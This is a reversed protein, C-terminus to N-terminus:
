PKKEVKKNAERPPRGGIGREFLGRGNTKRKWQDIEKLLKKKDTKGLLLNVLAWTAWPIHRFGNQNVPELWQRAARASVGALAAVDAGALNNEAMFSRLNEPTPTEYMPNNNGM